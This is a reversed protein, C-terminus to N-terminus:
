PSVSTISIPVLFPGLVAASVALGEGEPRSWPRLPCLGEDPGERIDPVAVAAPLGVCAKEVESAGTDACSSSFPTGPVLSSNGSCCSPLAFCGSPPSWPLSSCAGDGPICFATGCDGVSDRGRTAGSETAVVIAAGPTGADSEPGGSGRLVPPPTPSRLGGGPFWCLATGGDGVLRRETVAGLKTAVVIATGM